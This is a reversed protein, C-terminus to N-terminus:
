QDALSEQRAGARVQGQVHDLLTKRPPNFVDVELNHGEFSAFNTMTREALVPRFKLGPAFEAPFRGSVHVHQGSGTTTGCTSNSTLATVSAAAALTKSVDWLELYDTTSTHSNIV